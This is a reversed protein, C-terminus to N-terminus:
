PCVGNNNCPQGNCCGGTGVPICGEGSEACECIFDQNCFGVCCDFQSCNSGTPICPPLICVYSIEHPILGECCGIASINASEGEESCESSACAGGQCIGDDCCWTDDLCGGNGISVCQHCLQDTGCFGECCDTNEICSGGQPICTPVPMETPPPPNGSGPQTPVVAAPVNTPQSADQGTGTATATAHWDGLDGPQPGTMLGDVAGNCSRIAREGAGVLVLTGGLPIEIRVTLSPGTVQGNAELEDGVALRLRANALGGNDAVSFRLQGRLEGPNDGGFQQNESPGLRVSAVLDLECTAADDQASVNVRTLGFGALAAAFLGGGGISRFAARRTTREAWSRSLRDFRDADM